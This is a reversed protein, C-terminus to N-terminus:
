RDGIICVRTAQKTLRNESQQLPTHVTFLAGYFCLSDVTKGPQLSYSMRQLNWQELQVKSAASVRFVWRSYKRGIKWGKWDFSSRSETKRRIKKQTLRVAFMWFNQVREITKQVSAIQVLKSANTLFVETASMHSVWRILLNCSICPLICYRDHGSFFGTDNHKGTTLCLDSIMRGPALRVDQIECHERM